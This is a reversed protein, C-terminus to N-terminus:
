GPTSYRRLQDEDIEIGLGPGTPVALAGDALTFGQVLLDDRLPNHTRDYEIMPENQLPVVSATFPVPPATALAQLAAAVAVGSGWVHPVTLVGFSTTLAIIKQWETFGGTCCLDPQAIDLCEGLLLDRFGYRTFEAEGGAVPVDIANRVRRYGQRDEPPVPEEFWLVDHKELARGMRIASASTYAHNADAMLSASPGIADRVVAVREADLGIPLLGVKMKIATMGAERYGRAEGELEKLMRATNQYYDPYYCGTGYASIQTRFAGGMLAHIPRGLSKGWLDWLAIDIASLAEIYTGKQGFDRSFAYLDEFIRVPQDAQRGILLPSLVHKVCAAPPEPPGYQGGEGWGVLGDATTIKVLFSNREPFAAQSSYFRKQGLPTRLIFTEISQIKM